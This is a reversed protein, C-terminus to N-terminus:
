GLRDFAVSGGQPAAAGYSRAALSGTNVQSLEERVRALEGRLASALEEHRRHMRELTAVTADHDAAYQPASAAETIVPLFKLVADLREGLMSGPVSVDACMSALERDLTELAALPTAPLSAFDPRM